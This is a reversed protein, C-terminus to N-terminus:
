SEVFSLVNITASGSPPESPCGSADLFPIPTGISNLESFVYCVIESGSPVTQAHVPRQNGLIIVGAALVIGMILALVRARSVSTHLTM